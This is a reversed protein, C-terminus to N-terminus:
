LSIGYSSATVSTFLGIINKQTIKKKKKFIAFLVNNCMVAVLQCFQDVWHKLVAFDHQFLHKHCIM